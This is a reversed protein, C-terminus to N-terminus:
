GGRGLGPDNSPAEYPVARRLPPAPPHRHPQFSSVCDPGPNPRVARHTPPAALAPHGQCWAGLSPVLHRLPASLSSVGRASCRAESPTQSWRSYPSARPGRPVALPQATLFQDHKPMTIRPQERLLGHQKCVCTSPGGAPIRELAWTHLLSAGRPQLVTVGPTPTGTRGSQKPTRKSEGRSDARLLGRVSTLCFCVDPCRGEGEGVQERCPPPSPSAVPRTGRTLWRPSPPVPSFPPLLPKLGERESAAGGTRLM